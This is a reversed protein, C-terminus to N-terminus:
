ASRATREAASSEKGEISTLAIVRNMLAARTTRYAEEPLLQQDYREDLAAIEGILQAREGTPQVPPPDAAIPKSRTRAGSKRRWGFAAGLGALLMTAGSAVLLPATFSPQPGTLAASMGTIQASIRDGRNLETATYLQYRRGGLETGGQPQLKDSALELGGEPVYVSLTGVPYALVKDIVARDGRYPLQYSFALEQRGPFVPWILGMGEPTSILQSEIMGRQPQFGIAGAPLPFRASIARGGNPEETGIVTRPETNSLGSMEMLMLAEPQIGAVLIAARDYRLADDTRTADYVTIEISASPAEALSVPQPPYYWAGDHSAIPLYITSPDRMLEGFTFRGTADATTTRETQWGSEKLSALTVTVGGLTMGGPTGNSLQGSIQGSTDVQFWITTIALALAALIETM